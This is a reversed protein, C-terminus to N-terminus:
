DTHELLECDENLLVDYTENFCVSILINEGEDLTDVVEWNQKKAVVIDGPKLNKAVIIDM